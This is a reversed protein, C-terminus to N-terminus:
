SQSTNKLIMAMCYSTQSTQINPKRSQSESSDVSVLLALEDVLVTYKFVDSSASSAACLSPFRPWVSFGSPYVQFVEGPGLLM